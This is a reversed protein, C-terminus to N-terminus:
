VHARGIQNTPVETGLTVKGDELLTMLSAAKFVSGPEGPQGVAMNFTERFNNNRDRKLNVMAKVAGTEVEMVVICGSEIKEDEMIRRRLARDAIDQIDIDLTLRIDKGNQVAVGTSDPDLIRGKDTQKMWQIGETGHLIHNYQGEIGVFRSDKPNDKDIKVDGIIRVALGEYPYQRTDVKTVIMGSHYKNEKFLPLTQLKKLTQHDIGKAIPVNRSGDNKKKSDRKSIILNYYYSADKGEEQLVKPLERSLAEAKKRWNRELTDRRVSDEEKEYEEKLIKCDMNINYMPTSLALLKGNCDM